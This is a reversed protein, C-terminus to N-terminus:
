RGLRKNREKGQQWMRVLSLAVTCIMGLPIVVLLFSLGRLWNVGFMPLLLFIGANALGELGPSGAAAFLLLVAAINLAWFVLMFFHFGRHPTAIQLALVVVWCAIYLLTALAMLATAPAGLLSGFNALCAVVYGIGTLLACYIFSNRIM